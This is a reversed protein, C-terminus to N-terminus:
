YHNNSLTLKEAIDHRFYTGNSSIIFINVKYYVLVSLQIKTTSAWQFLLRHTSMNSWLSVNGQNQGLWDISKSKLSAQKASFCCIGIKYDKTQCFWTELGCDIVNSTLVSVM